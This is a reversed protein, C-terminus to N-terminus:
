ILQLGKYLARHVVITGDIIFRPANNITKFVIRDSTKIVNGIINFDYLINLVEGPDRDKLKGSNIFKRYNIKFEELCFMQKHIDALLDFICSIDPLLPYIEDELENRLYNSYKIESDMVIQSSIKDRNRLVCFDACTKLYKIFDRPRLFSNFLIFDFPNRKTYLGVQEARFIKNWAMRFDLVQHDSLNLAKSIRYALLKKLTDKEWNLEIALDLWKTKDSDMLQKYIDDRLFITPFIHYQDKSFISKIDQIAKFLSILLSFYKKTSQSDSFNSYDEDLEDFTLYYKSNDVYKAIVEELLDVRDIWSIEKDKHDKLIEIESGIGFISFKVNKTTWKSITRQLSTSIDDPYITELKGRIKQDINNNRSMMKTISSYIIYKWFTIYQNPYTYKEDVLSYLENFPFNKFSLRQSFVDYETKKNLYESIATKGTGKRGIVFCKLGNELLNVEPTAYFYRHSDELKGDLMWNAIENIAGFSESDFENSKDTTQDKCIVIKRARKGKREEEVEFTVMTDVKPFAIDRFDNHHFFIERGTEDELFGYRRDEFYKM